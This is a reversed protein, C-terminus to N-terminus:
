RFGFRFPIRMLPISGFTSGPVLSEDTPPGGGEGSDEPTGGFILAAAVAGAAAGLVGVTFIATRKGDLEKVAVDVMHSPQLRLTDALTTPLFGPRRLTTVSLVAFEGRDWSVLPGTVDTVDPGFYRRMEEVGADTLTARVEVGRPVAGQETPVWRYCGGLAVVTALTLTARVLSM